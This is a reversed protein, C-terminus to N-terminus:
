QDLTLNARSHEVASTYISKSGETVLYPIYHAVVSNTKLFRHALEFDIPLDVTPTCSLVNAAIRRRVGYAVTTNTAPHKKFHFNGCTAITRSVFHHPYGGGFILVDVISPVQSLIIDLKSMLSGEWLADDEIILLWESFSSQCFSEFALLHSSATAIESRALVRPKPPPDYIYLCKEHWAKECLGQYQKGIAEPQDIEIQLLNHQEFRELKEKLYNLRDSLAHYHIIYLKNLNM